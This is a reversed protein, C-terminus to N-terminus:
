QEPVYVTWAIPTNGTDAPSYMVTAMKGVALNSDDGLYRTLDGAVDSGSAVPSAPVGSESRIVVINTRNNFVFDHRDAVLGTRTEPSSFREVTLTMGGASSAAIQGSVPVLDEPIQTTFAYDPTAPGRFFLFYAAVCLLAIIGFVLIRKAM